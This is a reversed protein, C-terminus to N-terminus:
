RLTESDLNLESAPIREANPRLRRLGVTVVETGSAQVSESLVQPSPYRATGLLLRSQLPAGAVVWPTSRALSTLMNM